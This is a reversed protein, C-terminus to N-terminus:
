FLMKLGLQINRPLGASSIVGFTSSGFGAGPAGFAPTNTINFAEARFQIRLGEMPRFERHLSLDLQRRGPGHLFNRALNGFTYLPQAAFCTTNFWQYVSQQFGQTPDCTVDPRDATGTNARASSNTINFPLGTALVAIANIRWGQALFAAVGKKGKAFPLEYNGFATFRHRMDLYDNGREARLDNVQGVFNDISHSYTYTFLASFGKSFRRELTSQLGHYNTNYWPAAISINSVNPFINYYPRRPNVAGPGPAPQNLNVTGNFIYQRRGLAGVYGVTAVFGLPFERQLTLNYQQVYPTAADPAVGSLNGTPNAPSTAVAPPFGDSIKNSVALATATVTYLSVFPPNRLALPSGIFPPVFNIGYGGRLVTGKSLTAAFGFRPAFDRKNAQVGASKSVGNQGAVVIKGQALDINAIRDAVETIPGYYDYRVGLNLTLWGNVRWDDQLYAATEWLRLGPWVIYKSRTTSAPYGLIVSALANGSAATRGTPDNTLNADFSFSGEPSASQFPTLQRRRLDAGAKITHSGQTYSFNAVEQFLNNITILPIFGADGIARYGSINITSLGSSNLDVNAGPIGLKQDPNLGYNFPLSFVSFRSFGSKLEMVLKPGFVHVYNMQAGHARQSSPGSFGTDGVPNIGGPAVPFAGPTTTKTNNFSYRLFLSDSAFLRQDARIDFTDNNQSKVPSITYNNISAATQQMPYLSAVQIGVPDFRNAPIQDNPFRDRVNGNPVTPDTRTSLPDFVANAGAFNGQRMAATPVTSTFTQGQRMRFGEYDGFIFTRDKRIPAGISGGFQNQKYTPKVSGAFFNRADLHENRFFEFGSGHIQNTGSKTVFNLVGGATRGLEASYLSTQVKMEVLADISPKVIVSGIFRENDDMGDILFNNSSTPQANVSVSSTQRRDDPRAGSALGNAEGENAGAALQALVVFNRGNVPLDQVARENILNGMSSSDTQLLAASASVEVSEGVAGVQLQIDQRLRDGITLTV